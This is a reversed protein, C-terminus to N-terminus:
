TLIRRHVFLFDIRQFQSGIKQEPNTANATDHQDSQQSAVDPFDKSIDTDGNQAKKPWVAWTM